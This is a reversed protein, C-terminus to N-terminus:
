DVRDRIPRWDQRRRQNGLGFVPTRITVLFSIGAENASSASLATPAHIDM